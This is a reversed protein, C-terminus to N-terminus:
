HSCDMCQYFREGHTCLSDQEHGLWTFLEKANKPGISSLNKATKGNIPKNTNKEAEKQPLTKQM